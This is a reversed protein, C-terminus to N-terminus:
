EYLDSILQDLVLIGATKKDKGESYFVEVKEKYDTLSKPM